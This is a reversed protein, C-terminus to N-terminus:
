ATMEWQQRIWDRIRGRVTSTVGFSSQINHNYGVVLVPAVLDTGQMQDIVMRYSVGSVPEGRAGRSLGWSPQQDAQLVCGTLREFSQVVSRGNLILMRIPASELMAIITHAARGVLGRRTATPLLAWKQSTAWPVIDVHCANAEPWYYSHGTEQLLCQLPGFWGNYPNEEFYRQCANIIIRMSAYDVGSWRRLGLSRLTPLRRDIGELEVGTTDVFERNSPNLGVTAVESTEIHGFFPVPCGWNILDDARGDDLDALLRSFEAYM